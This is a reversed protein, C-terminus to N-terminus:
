ILSSKVLPCINSISLNCYSLGYYLCMHKESMSWMHFMINWMQLTLAWVSYLKLSFCVHVGTQAAYHVWVCGFFIYISPPLCGYLALMCVRQCNESLVCVRASTSLIIESWSYTSEWSEFPIEIFLCGTRWTPRCCSFLQGTTMVHTLSFHFMDTQEASCAM